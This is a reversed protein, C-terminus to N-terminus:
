FRAFRPRDLGGIATFDGGADLVGIPDTTLVRVGAVGNAQPSWETLRGDGTVAALKVRPASGDLCAGRPGNRTTLCVRDFHGGVYAVEGVTTIATADGDFVRQWRTTGDLTYAVARGGQGGTAAYVGAHNVTIANVEAAVSPRFYRDLVGTVGDVAALRVSRPDDNVERFAGGLFVQGGSVALTRVRDDAGARWRTDVRGTALSFAALNRLAHGSVATFSGGLYLRGAGIALAYPTGAIDHRFSTVSGAVPDIRAISDRKAGGVRHFGGAAYVAGRTAALARVTGDAPPAWDLLAGTRGDFAALRQRPYSRGGWRAKTFGGGVYVTGGLYAIAYVTGNFTPASRVASEVARAPAAASLALLLILVLLRM